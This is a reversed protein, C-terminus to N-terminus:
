LAIERLAEYLSQVDAPLEGGEAEAQRLEDAFFQDQIPRSDLGLMEALELLKAQLVPAEDDFSLVPFGSARHVEFLRANYHKWLELAADIALDNRRKLSQAVRLPHRFIGVLDLDPMLELWGDLTLLTRPDKFGWISHEAYEALIRQAESFHEPKWEVVPPPVDWSGGNDRLIADNLVRAERNERNGRLNHENSTSHRGLFLGLQQLSGALASTGSRHMGLVCVVRTPRVAAARDVPPPVSVM